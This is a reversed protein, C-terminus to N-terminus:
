TPRTIMASGTTWHSSRTVKWSDQAYLGLQSKGMRPHTPNNISTNDALGLLFSAYGLGVNSGQVSLTQFPQGTENAAFNYTGLTNGDIFPPYGQTLFEAGFKYTHNNKVWNVNTNFSPSQTIQNSGTGLRYEEHRGRRERCANGHHDPVM